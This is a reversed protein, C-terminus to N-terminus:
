QKTVSFSGSGGTSRVFTGTLTNNNLTATGNFTLTVVSGALNFSLTVVSGSITGSASGAGSDTSTVACTSNDRTQIGAGTTSGSFSTGTQSLTLAFSGGDSFTCGNSGQGSWAWTGMWTGTLPSTNFTATVTKNGSMTVFTSAGTGSAGGSWSAFSSGADPTATLTVVGGKAYILGPSFGPPDATVTGSGTGATGLTLQYVPDVILTATKSTEEAVLDTVSVGFTYTGAISPTGALYGNADMLIGIPPFGSATAITYAYPPTGGTTNGVQQGYPQGVQAHPLPSLVLIPGKTIVNGKGLGTLNLKVTPLSLANSKVQLVASFTGAKLPKFQVTGKVTQNPKLSFAGGGKVVEFPSALSGVSGILKATGINKVTFSGTSVSGVITVKFTVQAPSLSIFPNQKAQLPM